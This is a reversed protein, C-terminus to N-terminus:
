EKKDNKFGEATWAFLRITGRLGFLVIVFSIPALIIGGIVGQWFPRNKHKPPEDVTTVPDPIDKLYMLVYRGMLKEPDLNTLKVLNEEKILAIVDLPLPRFSSNLHPQNKAEFRSNIEKKSLTKYEDILRDREVLVKKEYKELKKENKEVWAKHEPNKILFTHQTYNYGFLFGPVIAIIGIILAIRNFGKIISM